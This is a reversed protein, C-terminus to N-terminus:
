EEEEIEEEPEPEIDYTKEIKQIIEVTPIGTEMDLYYLRWRDKIKRAFALRTGNTAVRPNWNPYTDKTLATLEETELNYRHIM